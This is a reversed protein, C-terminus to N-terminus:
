PAPTPAPTAGPNNSPENNPVSLPAPQQGGPIFNSLVNSPRTGAANCSELVAAIALNSAQSLGVVCASYRRPLLSRRCNDLIAAADANTAGSSIESVCKGMDIPRRVRRCNGVADAGSASTSTTVRDVCYALDQPYLSASCASAADAEAIGSGLLQSECRAYDRTHIRTSALASPLVVASSAVMVSVTLFRFIPSRLGINHM